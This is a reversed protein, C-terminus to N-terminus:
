APRMFLLFILVGLMLMLCIKDKDSMTKSAIKEANAADDIPPLQGNTIATAPARM